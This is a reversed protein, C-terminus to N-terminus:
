LTRGDLGVEGWQRPLGKARDGAGRDEPSLETLGKPIEEKVGSPKTATPATESGCGIMVAPLVTVVVLVFLPFLRYM